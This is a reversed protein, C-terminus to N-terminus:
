KTTFFPIFIRQLDAPAIGAGTDEVEVVAWAKDHQADQVRAGRVAVCRVQRDDDFAEAANRLLSLLAQRLMREDARLRPLEGSIDLTVARETYLAQLETACDALLEALSVDQLSLPQPRAFNLFSTVLATLARVEHLLAAAAARGQEDLDFH